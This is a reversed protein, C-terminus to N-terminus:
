IMEELQELEEERFLPADSKMIQICYFVLAGKDYDALLFVDGVRAKIVEPNYAFGTAKAVDEHQICSYADFGISQFEDESLQHWKLDFEPEIIMKPSFRSIIFKM